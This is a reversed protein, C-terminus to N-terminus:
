RGFLYSVAEAAKGLPDEPRQKQYVGFDQRADQFNLEYLHRFGTDLLATPDPSTPRATDAAAQTSTVSSHDPLDQAALHTAALLFFAAGFILFIRRASM